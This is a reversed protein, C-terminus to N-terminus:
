KELKVRARRLRARKDSRFEARSWGISKEKGAQVRSKDLRFGVREWCLSQEAGIM